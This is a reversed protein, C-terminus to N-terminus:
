QRGEKSGNQRSVGTEQSGPSRAFGAQIFLVIPM